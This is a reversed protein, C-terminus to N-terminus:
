RDLSELIDADVIDKSRETARNGRIISVVDRQFQSEAIGPKLLSWVELTLPWVIALRDGSTWDVYPDDCRDGGLMTKKIISRDM